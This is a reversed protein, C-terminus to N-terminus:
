LVREDAVISEKVLAAEASYTSLLLKLMKFMDIKWVLKREDKEMPAHLLQQYASARAYFSAQTPVSLYFFVHM